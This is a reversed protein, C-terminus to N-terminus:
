ERGGANLRGFVGDQENNPGATFYLASADGLSFGNGFALAWIGDIVIKRHTKDELYGLFKGSRPDFAAITGDGFNAVLVDNAFAGFTAPAIAVGWPANLSEMDQFDLALTGDENFEVLHGLGRGVIQEQGEDSGPDFQTYTVFLHGALSVVNFPHLGGVTPPTQFHYDRSVDKWRSDFVLIANNRMDAAFLHNGGSHKFAESSGPNNTLAVGTFVCNTKFPLQAARKAYDIMVPARDMSLATASSWANICGDETVFVFKAPGKYGGPIVQKTKLNKAPGAVPFEDPQGPLDSAANYAQGTVFAYGHDTFAPEDLTVIKLEDQHLLNKPVDGIFESSTGSRANSIWIHGGAGPPRLALGWANLMQPDIIQPHYAAKNAVLNTQEYVNEAARMPLPMAALAFLGACGSLLTSTLRTDSFRGTWSMSLLSNFGM